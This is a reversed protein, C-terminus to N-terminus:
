YNVFVQLQSDLKLGPLDRIADLRKKKFRNLEKESPLKWHYFAGGHDEDYYILPSAKVSLFMGASLMRGQGVLINM